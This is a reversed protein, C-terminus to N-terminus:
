PLRTPVFEIVEATAAGSTIFPDSAVARAVEDRTGEVVMLGGTRPEMRGSIRVLGQAFVGDPNGYHEELLADITELSRYKLLILFM